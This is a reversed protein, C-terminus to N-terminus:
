SSKFLSSFRVGNQVFPTPEEEQAGEQNDAVPHEGDSDATAADDSAPSSSGEGATLTVVPRQTVAMRLESANFIRIRGQDVGGELLTEALRVADRSGDVVSIEGRKSDEPDLVMVIVRSSM